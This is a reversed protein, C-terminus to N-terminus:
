KHNFYSYLGTAFISVGIFPDWLATVIGANVCTILYVFLRM